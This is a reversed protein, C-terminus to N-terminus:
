DNDKSRYKDYLEKLHKINCALGFTAGVSYGGYLVGVLRHEKGDVIPSGSAGGLEEGQFQFKNEDPEKSVSIKHVTPKLTKNETHLGLLFGYPYGITILDEQQPQLKKEDIRAHEIDFFGDKVIDVPTKKSNLRLLAVDKEKDGSEAVVHCPLLERTYTLNQGKLAIDISELRGSIKIPSSKFRSIWGNVENLKQETFGSGSEVLYDYIFKGLLGRFPRKNDKKSWANLLTYQLYKKLEPTTVHVNIKLENIPLLENRYEALTQKIRNTMGSTNEDIYDWPSAIHRNTGLEGEKSIFFATGMYGISTVYDDYATLTKLVPYDKGYRGFLWEKPWGAKELVEIFPDDEFTAVIYYQGVVCTTAKELAKISPKGFGIMSKVGFVIGVIVAAVAVAGIIKTLIHPGPMFPKLDVPVGGCAIADNRKIRVNQGFAVKTGNITTGNKSHDQIYAKGDKGIKLTAHFRSVTNGSIQIENRFNSGIGFLAKYNSNNEPMPIQSWMLEVDGFRIADGRRISVATGAKIPKNMLFTGNKSNKDELLIDGNNLVTIEAHLSSVKDSHLVLDCSADRGIKLLRM